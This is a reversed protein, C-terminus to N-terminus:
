FIVAELRGLLALNIGSAAMTPRFQVLGSSQSKSNQTRNETKQIRGWNGRAITIAAGAWWSYVLAQCGLQKEFNVISVIWV